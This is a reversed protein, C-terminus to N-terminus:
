TYKASFRIHTSDVWEVEPIHFQDQSIYYVAHEINEISAYRVDETDITVVHLYEQDEGINHYRYVISPNYFCRVDLLYEDYHDDLVGYLLNVTEIWQVSDPNVYHDGIWIETLGKYSPKVAFHPYLYGVREIDDYTLDLHEYLSDDAERFKRIRREETSLLGMWALLNFMESRRDEKAIM